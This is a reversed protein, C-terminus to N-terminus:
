VVSEASPEPADASIAAVARQWGGIWAAVGAAVIIAFVSFGLYPTIVFLQAVAYAAILLRTRWPEALGTGTTGLTWLLFPLVMVAEYSLSHPSVLLGVLCAAAAAEVIPARLLRPLALLGVVAALGYALWSSAGHGILLEPIGITKNVNHPLDVDFYPATLTLWDKPWLWDGASGAVGLLYWGFAVVAVTLLAKWRWRLVLIALLALALTPKFLMGGVALGALVQKDRRLGYIAVFALLMGLAESHGVAASVLVPAWALTATVAVRTDLDFARAAVWGAAFGILLIATAHAWFAGAISLGGLPWYLWATGPPYLFHFVEYGRALMWAEQRAPDILAPTGVLQGAYWFQPFDVWGAFPSGIMIAGSMVALGVGWLRVRGPDLRIPTTSRDATRM